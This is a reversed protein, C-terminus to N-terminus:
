PIKYFSKIFNLILEQHDKAKNENLLEEEKLDFEQLISKFSLVDLDRHGMNWSSFYRKLAVGESLVKVDKHRPDVKIKEYLAKVQDKEGELIQIFTGNILEPSLDNNICLLFGSIDKLNNNERSHHLIDFLKDKSLNDTSRSKYILYYM